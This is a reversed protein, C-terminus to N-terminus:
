YRQYGQDILYQVVVPQCMRIAAEFGGGNYGIYLGQEEILYQLCDIPSESWTATIIISDEYPCGNEM